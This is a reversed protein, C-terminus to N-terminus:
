THRKSSVMWWSILFTILTFSLMICISFGISPVNHWDISHNMYLVRRLLALGYTMPNLKVLWLLYKPLGELPFFAGSLFWMPLLMLMMIAHFGQTSDMRWALSFGFSTLSTAVLSFILFLLLCTVVGLQLGLFPAIILFLLAQLVAITAGGVVKGLVISLRSAPSVMVGQLFGENRDEIISFTSFIATFLLIMLLIGPYFYEIYTMDSEFGAPRFSSSFGAGIFIWFLIPQGLAGFVRNRQRLFRVVERSWLSYLPLFHKKL